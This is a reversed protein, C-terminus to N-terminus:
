VQAEQMISLNKVMQAILPTNEALREGGAGLIPKEQKGRLAKIGQEHSETLWRQLPLSRDQWKWLCKM